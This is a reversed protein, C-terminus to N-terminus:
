EVKTAFKENLLKRVTDKGQRICDGIGVGDYSAGIAYVNPFHNEMAEKVDNVWEKHGVKYQPMAEKWRSVVSFEPTGKIDMVKKLDNMVLNVLQADDYSTVDQNGPRGVYCRLLVKGSNTTHPWKKNTWTCATILYDDQRSVVFGTGEQEINIQEASFALAVNAVTTYDMNRLGAIASNEPLLEAVVKYPAAIMVTDAFISQGNGLDLQYGTDLRHLKKVATNLLVSEVPIENQVAEVLSFLGRKLTYFQGTKKKPGSSTRTSRMGLVLSRHKQELQLFNPFTANLSLDDINSAYIGSLLPEILYDVVENGLRRRFFSGVSQDGQVNSKPKLLDLAARAKGIPSFLGSTIFPGVRTPVGMVADEPIPYLQDGKLVYSQGTHNTVLEHELGVEKILEVAEKKRKLFSDPGREIVFGDQRETKIKGGLNSSPEILTFKIPLNHTTIAKQLYFAASLGTIGGGIIAIQHMSKTTAM